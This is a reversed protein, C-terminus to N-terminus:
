KMKKQNGAWWERTNSNMFDPFVSEGPWVSNKYVIGDKDTAFYGEKEGKM